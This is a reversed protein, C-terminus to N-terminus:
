KRIVYRYVYADLREFEGKGQHERAFGNVSDVVVYGREESDSEQMVFFCGGERLELRHFKLWPMAGVWYDLPPQKMGFEALMTRGFSKVENIQSQTLEGAPDPGKHCGSGVGLLSGVLLLSLLQNM